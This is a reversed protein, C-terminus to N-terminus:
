ATFQESMFSQILLGPNANGQLLRELELTAIFHELVTDDEMSAFVPDSHEVMANRLRTQLRVTFAQAKEKDSLAEAIALDDFSELYQNLLGDNKQNAHTSETAETPNLHFHLCRSRLTALLNFPQETLLIFFRNEGPEELTKLFANAAATTMQHVREVIAIKAKSEMPSLEMVHCISRITEIKIAEVGEPRVIILDPYIEREVRSCNRCIGCFVEPRKECVLSAAIAKAFKALVEHNNGSLLLAHHIKDSRLYDWLRNQSEINETLRLPGKPLQSKSIM